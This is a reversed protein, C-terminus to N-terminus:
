CKCCTLERTAGTAHTIKTGGGPISGADGANCPSEEGSSWLLLGATFKLDMTLQGEGRPLREQSKGVETELQTSRPVIGPSGLTGHTYGWRQVTAKCSPIGTPSGTQEM